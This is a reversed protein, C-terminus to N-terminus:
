LLRARTGAAREEGLQAASAAAGLAVSVIVAGAVVLAALRVATPRYASRWTLIYM